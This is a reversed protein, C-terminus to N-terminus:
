SADAAPLVVEVGAERLAHALEDPPAVDTVLYDARGLEAVQREVAPPDGHLALHDGRGSVRRDLDPVHHAVDAVPGDTDRQEVM